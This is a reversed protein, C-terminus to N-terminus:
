LGSAFPSSEYRRLLDETDDFIATAGALADDGWGGSRLAVTRVGARTAAEVDYPTDGLMLVEAATFEGKRLAAEIIDPDPKSSEADSSSTKRQVLEELGTQELLKNLQEADSSTAIVLRLGDAKFKALLEHAGPFARLTPLYRADFLESRRKTIAKGKESDDELGTLEPLVKDGGKGVLPRVREASIDYGFEKFTDAWASAHAGNSDILTGDVDLLVGRLKGRAM